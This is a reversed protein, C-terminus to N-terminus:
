FRTLVFVFAPKECPSLKNQYSRLRTWMWHALACHNSCINIHCKAGKGGRMGFWHAAYLVSCEHFYKRLAGTRIKWSLRLNDDQQRENRMRPTDGSSDPLLEHQRRISCTVLIRCMVDCGTVGVEGTRAQELFSLVSFNRNLIKRILTWLAATYLNADM